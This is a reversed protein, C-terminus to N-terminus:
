HRFHREGTFLMAMNRHNAAEIVVQDKISGGPQVVSAIGANNLEELTDAFPFFADSAAVAGVVEFGFKKARRVAIEASDVRSMQGAGIGIATLDKAVVIVNSKVHKVISWAFILDRFEEETPKRDTVCMDASLVKLDIDLDQVLFDGYFPRLQVVGSQNFTNVKEYNIEILRINPKASFVELSEKSFAPAIVVEVFQELISDATTKDIEVNTAIIGGFSSIPDCNKAALFSENLGERIAVGCPNNHKVIVTVAESKRACPLLEVLLDVCAQIDLINNYSLEKGQKQSWIKESQVGFQYFLGAKQHPNEGYRLDNDKKLVLPILEPLASRDSDHELTEAFLYNSIAGDYASTTAFVKAAVKKRFSHPVTGKRLYSIAEEYDTPDVLSLVDKFNKASARLMAPGGIDVFEILHSELEMPDKFKASLEEQKAVFPYLNVIVVDILGINNAQLDNIDQQNERRALIGGHVKPHLTKVRGDLIEPHNTVSEVMTVPISNQSLYKATGGTSLIEFGLEVLQKAMVEINDKNFVSILARKM